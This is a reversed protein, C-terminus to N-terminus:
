EPSREFRAVCEVHPTHPFLDVPRVRGPVYGLAALRGVDAAAAKMKPGMKKGLTKFNAKFTLTALGGPGTTAIGSGSSTTLSRGVRELTRGAM